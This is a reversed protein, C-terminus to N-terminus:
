ECSSEAGALRVHYTGPDAPFLKEVEFCAGLDSPIPRVRYRSEVAGVAIAVVAPTDASAALAWRTRRKPRVRKRPKTVTSMATGKGLLFQWGGPRKCRRPPCKRKGGARHRPSAERGHPGGPVLGAARHGVRRGAGPRGSLAADQRSGPQKTIPPQND